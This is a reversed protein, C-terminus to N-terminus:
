IDLGNWSFMICFAWNIASRLYRSFLVTRGCGKFLSMYEMLEGSRCKWKRWQREDEKFGVEGVSIIHAVCSHLNCQGPSPFARCPPVLLRAQFEQAKAFGHWCGWIEVGDAMLM